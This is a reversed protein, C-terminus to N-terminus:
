HYVCQILASAAVGKLVQYPEELLEVLFPISRKDGIYGLAGLINMKMEQDVEGYAEELVAIAEPEGGGLALVLAAQIRVTEEPTELLGRLADLTGEGGEELLTNSAAYTVGLTEERLLEKVADEAHPHKLAFLMGLIELRTLQDVMTPYKPVQPVHSVKSPAVLQFFPNSSGDWMLKGQRLALFAYLSDGLKEPNGGQGVGGLALNAKVFPDPSIRMVEHALYVGVKGIRGLVYAALRRSADDTSYVWKRVVAIASEPAFRSATWAATLAVSPHPDELLDAIKSLGRSSVSQLGLCYLANLAAIRVEPTPDDLLKEISLSEEALNLHAVVQCALHRLAARKSRILQYLEESGITDYMMVLAAIAAGKEEVTVRSRIILEQLPKKVEKVEMVGLAKIVELRVFWVREKALMETLRGILVPDRYRTSLQAAMARMIASSSCLQGLLMEVARVDDTYYASMLTATNVMFHPSRELRNLVGWALTELLEPDEDLVGLKKWELLAEDDKGNEALARVRAKKVEVSDPYLREALACEKLASPYDRILLHSHIRQVSERESVSFFTSFFALFVTFFHKM